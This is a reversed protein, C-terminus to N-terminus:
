GTPGVETKVPRMNSHLLLIREVEIKEKGKLCARALDLASRGHEDRVDVQAGNNCLVEVCHVISRHKDGCHITYLLATTGREPPHYFYKDRGGLLQGSAHKHEWDAIFHETDYSQWENPSQLGNMDIGYRVLLKVCRELDAGSNSQVRTADLAYALAGRGVPDIPNDLAGHNLLSGATRIDLTSMALSLLSIRDALTKVLQSSSRSSLGYRSLVQWGEHVFLHERLGLCFDVVECQRFRVAVAGPSQFQCETDHCLRFEELSRGNQALQSLHCLASVCICGMEWNAGAAYLTRIVALDGGACAAHAASGIMDCDKKVSASHEILFTVVALDRRIAALCLPTGFWVSGANVDAGAQVIASITEM